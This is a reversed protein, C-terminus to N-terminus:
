RRLLNLSDNVRMVFLHLPKAIQRVLMSGDPSERILSEALRRIVIRPEIAIKTLRWM